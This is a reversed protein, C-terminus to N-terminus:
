SPEPLADGALRPRGDIWVELGPVRARQRDLEERAWPEWRRWPALFLYGGAAEGVATYRGLLVGAATLLCVLAAREDHQRNEECAKALGHRRELGLEFVLRRFRGTAVWRDYLWDFKRGRRLRPSREYAEDPVCVGLFANPFAEVANCDGVRPFSLSLEKRPALDRLQRATEWGAARLRSGTGPVHSLGPRCRRGFRGLTLLRECPRPERAGATTFPADIAAVDIPAGGVLGRRSEWSANALGVRLGGVGDLRAVGTSCRTASFGVDLGVLNM